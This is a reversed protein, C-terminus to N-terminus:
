LRGFCFIFEKPKSACHVGCLSKRTYNSSQVTTVPTTTVLWRAICNVSSRNSEIRQLISSQLESKPGTRHSSSNYDLLKPRRRQRCTAASKRIRYLHGNEELYRNRGRTRKLLSGQKRAIRRYPYQFGDANCSRKKVRWRVTSDAASGFKQILLRNGISRM